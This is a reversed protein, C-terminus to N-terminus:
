EENGRSKSAIIQLLEEQSYRAGNSAEYIRQVSELDEDSLDSYAFAADLADYTAYRARSLKYYNRGGEIHDYVDAPYDEPRTIGSVGEAAVRLADYDLDHSMTFMTMNKFAIQYARYEDSHAITELSVTIKEQKCSTTISLAGVILLLRIM